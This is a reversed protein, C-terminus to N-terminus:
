GAPELSRDAFGLRRALDDAWHATEIGLEMAGYVGLGTFRNLATSVLGEQEDCLLAVFALLEVLGVLEDDPIAVNM